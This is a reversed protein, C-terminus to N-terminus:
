DVGLIRLAEDRDNAIPLIKELSADRLTKEVLPRPAVLVLGDREGRLVRSVKVLMGMGLSAIFELGSVDVVTPKKRSATQTTFRLEIEQVGALDLRGELSVHTLSESSEVVSLKIM